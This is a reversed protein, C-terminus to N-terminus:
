KDSCQCHTKEVKFRSKRLQARRLEKMPALECKVKSAAKQHHSFTDFAPLVWKFERIILSQTAAHVMGDLLPKACASTNNSVYTHKHRIIEQSTPRPPSGQSRVPIQLQPLREQSSGMNAHASNFDQLYNLLRLFVRTHTIGLLCLPM